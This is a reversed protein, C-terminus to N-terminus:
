RPDQAQHRQPVEGHRGQRRHFHRRKNIQTPMHTHTYANTHMTHTHATAASSPHMHSQTHPLSHTLTHNLTHTYIYIHVRVRECTCLCACVCVYVLVCLWFIEMMKGTINYKAILSPTGVPVDGDYQVTFTLDEDRKFTILRKAPM